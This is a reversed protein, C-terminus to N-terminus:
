FVVKEDVFEMMMERFPFSSGLPEPFGTSFGRPMGSPGPLDGRWSCYEDFTRAIYLFRRGYRAFAAASRSINRNPLGQFMYRRQDRYPHGGRHYSVWFTANRRDVDDPHVPM